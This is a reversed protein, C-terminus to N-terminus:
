IGTGPPRGVVAAADGIREPCARIRSTSRSEERDVLRKETMIQLMKLVTTYGTPQQRNLEDM